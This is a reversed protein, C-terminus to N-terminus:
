HTGRHPGFKLGYDARDGADRRKEPMTRRDQHNAKHPKCLLCGARSNKPRRRKFNAM